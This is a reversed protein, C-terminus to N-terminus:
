SSRRGDLRRHVIAAFSAAANSSHTFFLSPETLEVELVVPDGAAEPILDVRSYAPVGFRATLFDLAQSGLTLETPSPTRPEITEEAFSGITPGEGAVLLPGKRVAHSYEGDLYVLDTEGDTDVRELYTQIMATRRSEQIRRLLAEADKRESANQLSFRATDKSGASVTPKIVVEGGDPLAPRGERPGVFATAVTAIGYRDLDDLYRKDTNWTVADLGNVLLPVSGAWRLFEDRRLLYDWTSRLVVADFAGWDFDRDDWVAWRVVIGRRALEAELLADDPDGHPLEACTAL